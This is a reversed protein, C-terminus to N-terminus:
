DRSLIELKAMSAMMHRLKGDFEISLVVDGSLKENKRVEGEGYRAHRVRAGAKLERLEEFTAQGEAKPNPM